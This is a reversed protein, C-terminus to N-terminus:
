QGLASESFSQEPQVLGEQTRLSAEFGYDLMLRDLAVSIKQQAIKEQTGLEELVSWNSIIDMVSNSEVFSAAMSMTELASDNSARILESVSSRYTEADYEQPFYKEVVCADFKAYRLREVLGRDDFNRFNFVQSYFTQLLDLRSDLFRYDPCSVTGELRKEAELRRAIPTGAYPSMKCFHILSDGYKSINKLFEINERVTENTSYPEFLMFGYEFPMHIKKLLVLSQLIDGVCYGKGFTKLGQESGSEIGLYVGALGAAKMKKLLDVNIDDVRCSIRWLIQDHLKRSELETLLTELWARHRRGRMFIDDDQFIFIRVGMEHFLVEMESVLNQASRTRRTPGKRRYFEHISCFTCDYYCGRSGAISRIGIGRHTAGQKSRVPFPLADLDNILPRQATVFVEGNQRYALGKIESWLERQNLKKYLELLTQEGECRVVSDLGPIADLMYGYEFTPFHGGITIHSKVGNERLYSILHVYDDLMRQFILSLGVIKPKRLKIRGLIQEETSDQLPVIEVRVSERGLYAAVSRLGLNEQGEFGVLLVDCGTKDQSSM